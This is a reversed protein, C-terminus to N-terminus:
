AGRLSRAYTELEDRPVGQEGHDVAYRLLAMVAAEDTLGAVMAIPLVEEVLARVEEASRAPARPQLEEVWAELRAARLADIQEQRIVLM